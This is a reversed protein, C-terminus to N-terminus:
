SGFQVTALNNPHIELLEIIYDGLAHGMESEHEAYEKQFVETIRTLLEGWTHAEDIPYVNYSGEKVEFPYNWRVHKVPVKLEANVDVKCTSLDTTDMTQSVYECREVVNEPLEKDDNDAYFGEYGVEDCVPGDWSATIDEEDCDWEYGKWRKVGDISVIAFFHECTTGGGQLYPESDPCQGIYIVIVSKPNENDQEWYLIEKKVQKITLQEFTKM